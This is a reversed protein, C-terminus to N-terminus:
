AFVFGPGVADNGNYVLSVRGYDDTSASEFQIKPNWSYGFGNSTNSTTGILIRGGTDIRVREANNNGRIQISNDAANLTLGGIVTDSADGLQFSAVGGDTCTLRVCADADGVIHLEQEPNSKNIGVYGASTIRVREKLEDINSTGTSHTKFSIYTGWNSTSERGFGFGSAIQGVGGSVAGLLLVENNVAASGSHDLQFIGNAGWDAAEDDGTAAFASLVVNVKTNPAQGIGLYGNSKIVVSDNGGVNSGVGFVINKAPDYHRIDLHGSACM